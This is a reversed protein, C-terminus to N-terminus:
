KPSKHYINDKAPNKTFKTKTFLGRLKAGIKDKYGLWAKPNNYATNGSTILDRPNDSKPQHNSEDSHGIGANHGSGHQILWAIYANTSMEFTKAASESQDIDVAIRDGKDGGFGGLSTSEEPGMFKVGVFDYDGPKKNDASNAKTKDFEQFQENKGITVLVDSKDLKNAKPIESPNIVVVRQTLGKDIFGKNAAKTIANLNNIISQKSSKSIKPDQLRLDTLYLINEMGDKDVVIIPSNAFSHYPSLNPCKAMLPDLALWRGLRSDYIRAGFDLSNGDGKLENDKEKGNFGFRYKEGGFASGDMPSGFPYPVFSTNFFILNNHM